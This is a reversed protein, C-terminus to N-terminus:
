LPKGMEGFFFEDGSKMLQYVWQKNEVEKTAKWFKSWESLEITPKLWEEPEFEITARVNAINIGSSTIGPDIAEISKVKFHGQKICPGRGFWGAPKVVLKKGKETFIYGPVTKNKNLPIEASIIYGQNILQAIEASKDLEEKESTIGVPVIKCTANKILGNNITLTVKQKDTNLKSCSTLLLILIAIYISYNRM